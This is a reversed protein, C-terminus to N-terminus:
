GATCRISADDADPLGLLCVASAVGGEAL